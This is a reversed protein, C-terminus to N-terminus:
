RQTIVLSMVIGTREEEGMNIDKFFPDIYIDLGMPAVFGKATAVGKVANNVAGAGICELKICKGEGIAGAIAGALKAVVSKSGVRFIGM